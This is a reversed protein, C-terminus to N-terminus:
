GDGEPMVDRVEPRRMGGARLKVWPWRTRYVPVACSLVGFSVQEAHCRGERGAGGGGGVDM